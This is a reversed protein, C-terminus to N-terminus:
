NRNPNNRLEGSKDFRESIFSDLMKKAMKEGPKIWSLEGVSLDIKLNNILLESDFVDSVGVYKYPHREIKKIPTLFDDLKSLLKPRITYAAYEQKDSASWIPVINHADIIHMPINLKKAISLTRNRYVKLPSFDTVLFGAKIDRVFKSVSKHVSGKYVIFPIQNKRLKASTEELGRILFGYQRINSKIFNGNLSYFVILPVKFQLAKKQAYLLAWNNEARRDRQMWYVVPGKSYVQTNLKQIRRTDFDPM